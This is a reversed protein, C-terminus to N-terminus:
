FAVGLKLQIASMGVSIGQVGLQQLHYGISMAFVGAKFGIGAGFMLGGLQPEEAAFGYGIDVMLFPDFKGQTPAYLKLDAFVPVMLMGSEIDQTYWDLGLGVGMSFCEGIRAGQITHLQFRHLAANGVGVNGSIYVEGQYKTKPGAAEAPQTLTVAFLSVLLITFLKKM